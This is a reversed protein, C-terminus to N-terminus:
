EQRNIYAKTSNSHHQSINVFLSILKICMLSIQRLGLAQLIFDYENPTMWYTRVCFKGFFSVKRVGQYACTCICILPNSISTKRFIKRVYKISPGKLGKKILGNELVCM